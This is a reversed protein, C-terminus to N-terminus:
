TSSQSAYNLRTPTLTIDSVISSNFFDSVMNINDKCRTWPWDEQITIWHRLMRPHYNLAMDNRHLQTTHSLACSINWWVIKLVSLRSFSLTYTRPWVNHLRTVLNSKFVFPESNSPCFLAKAIKCNTALTGCTLFFFLIYTRPLKM